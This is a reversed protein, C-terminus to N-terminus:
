CKGGMLGVGSEVNYVATILRDCFDEYTSAMNIPIKITYFCMASSPLRNGDIFQVSYRISPNISPLGSWFAMLKKMFDDFTDNNPLPVDTGYTMLLTTMWSSMSQQREENLLDTRNFHINEAMAHISERSITTASLMGDLTSVSVGLGRLVKHMNLARFGKVMSNLKKTISPADMYPQIYEQHIARLKIYEKFNQISVAKNEEAPLLNFNDNFDGLFEITSPERMCNLLTNADEPYDLLYYAIVNNPKVVHEPPVSLLEALIARQLPIGITIQNFICFALFQGIFEYIMDYLEDDTYSPHQIQMSFTPNITFRHTDTGGLHNSFFDDGIINEIMTRIVARVVGDGVGQMNAQQIYFGYITAHRRFFKKRSLPDLSLWVNFMDYFPRDISVTFRLPGSNTSNRFADQIGTQINQCRTRTRTTLRTCIREMMLGFNVFPEQLNAFKAKCDQEIPFSVRPSRGESDSTSKKLSRNRPSSTIIDLDTTNPDIFYYLLGYLRRCEANFSGIGRYHYANNRITTLLFNACDVLSRDTLLRPNNLNHMRQIVHGARRMAIDYNTDTHNLLNLFAQVSEPINFDNVAYERFEYFEECLSNYISSLIKVTKNTYPNRKFDMLIFYAFCIVKYTDNHLSSKYYTPLDSFTQPLNYSKLINKANSVLKSHQTDSLQMFFRVHEPQLDDSTSESSSDQASKQFGYHRRASKLLKAYIGGNPSINTGSVPNLKGNSLVFYAACLKSSRIVIQMQDETLGGYDLPLTAHALADVVQKIPAISPSDDNNTVRSIDRLMKCQESYERHKPGNEAIAVGTIPNVLPALTWYACALLQRKNLSKRQQRTLQSPESPFSPYQAIFTQAYSM